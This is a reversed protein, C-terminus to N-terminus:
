ANSRRKLIFITIGAAVLIVAASLIIILWINNDNQRSIPDRITATAPSSSEDGGGPTTEEVVDDNGPGTVLTGIEVTIPAENSLIHFSAHSITIDVSGDTICIIFHIYFFRTNEFTKM